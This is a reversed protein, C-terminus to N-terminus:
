RTFPNVAGIVEFHLHCGTAGHVEGTNGITGIEAGKKVYDGIVNKIKELHAYKTKTNNSHEIVIYNGYGGNWGSDALDIVLGEAAATVETGCSNGIDVANHNHLPGAIGEAPDAFYGKLDPLNKSTSIDSDIYDSDAALATSPLLIKLEQGLSLFSKRISPNTDTITKIPINFNKSIKTLTDGNKVKYTIYSDSGSYESLLTKGYASVTGALIGNGGVVVSAPSSDKLSNLNPKGVLLALKNLNGLENERDNSYSFDSLPRVKASVQVSTLWAWALLVMTGLFVAMLSPKNISSNLKIRLRAIPLIRDDDGNLDLSNDV